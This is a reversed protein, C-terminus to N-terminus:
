RAPVPQRQLPTSTPRSPPHQPGWPFGSGFPRRQQVSAPRSSPSSPRVGARQQQQQVHAAEPTTGAAPGQEPAALQQETPGSAAARAQQWFTGSLQASGVPSRQLQQLQSGVHLSDMSQQHERVLEDLSSLPRFGGEVNRLHSSGAEAAQQLPGSQQLTSTAQQPM